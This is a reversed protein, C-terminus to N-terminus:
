VQDDEIACIVKKNKEKPLPRNLEQNSAGVRKELYEKIHIYIDDAKIYVIFQRCENLETKSM